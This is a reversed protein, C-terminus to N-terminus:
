RSAGGGQKRSVVENLQNALEGIGQSCEKITNGCRALRQMSEALEQNRQREIAREQELRANDEEVERLRTRPEHLQAAQEREWKTEPLTEAGRGFLREWLLSRVLLSDKTDLGEKTNSVLRSSGLRSRQELM